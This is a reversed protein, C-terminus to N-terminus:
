ESGRLEVRVVLGGGPREIFVLSGGHRTVVTHAIALGLGTGGTTRNRSPDLRQFPRLVRERDALPIGPGRDAIEVVVRAGDRGPTLTIGAEGGYRVANDILNTFARRLATPRADIACRIPGNYEARHGLGRADDALTDLLTALDVSVSAEDARDERSFALVSDLLRTMQEVDERARARQAPDTVYELRMALRTLQTRIDHSVAALMHTREDLYTRIRRAM